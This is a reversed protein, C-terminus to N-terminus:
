GPAAVQRNVCFHRLGITCYYCHGCGATVTGLVVADGRKFETVGQGVEEVYGATEHGALGPLKAPIDGQIFHLDSHCVATAAIRVKIEGALPADVSVGDEVVLPKGAEYLIAARM